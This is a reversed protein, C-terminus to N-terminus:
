TEDFTRTTSDLKIETSDFTFDPQELATPEEIPPFRDNGVGIRRIDTEM